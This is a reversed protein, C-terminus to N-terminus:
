QSHQRLHTILLSIICVGVSIWMLIPLTHMLAKVGFLQHYYDLLVGAITVGILGGFISLMFFIASAIGAQKAPVAKMTATLFAPTALSYGVGLTAFIIFLKDLPTHINILSLSILGAIFLILGITAPIKSGIKDVLKGGAPSLFGMCLTMPLFTLGAKLTSFGYITQLYLGMIFLFPYLVSVLMARAICGTSFQINKCIDMNLLPHKINKEFRVFLPLAIASLVLLGLILFKNKQFNACLDVSFVLSSLVIGLLILGIIDFTEKTREHSEKVLFRSLVAIILGIPVNFLFVWRWSLATAFYGGLTPGISVAFGTVSIIAGVAMGKQHKPFAKFAIATTSPWMVAAGIGQLIRSTIIEWTSHALGGILSAIIFIIVGAILMKKHGIMDALRGCAVVLGCFTFLYASIVWHSNALSIHLSAALPAIVLNVATMEVNVLFVAFSVAFLVWWKHKYLTNDVM